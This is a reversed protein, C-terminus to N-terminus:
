SLVVGHFRIPPTSTYSRENKSTPMLHLHTTLQLVLMVLISIVHLIRVRLIRIRMLM